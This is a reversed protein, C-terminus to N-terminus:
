QVSYMPIRADQMGGVHGIGEGVVHGVDSEVGANLPTSPESATSAAEDVSIHGDDSIPGSMAFPIATVPTASMMASLPAGADDLSASLMQEPLAALPPM